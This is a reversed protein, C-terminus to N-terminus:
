LEIVETMQCQKCCLYPVGFSDERIEAESGCERCIISFKHSM